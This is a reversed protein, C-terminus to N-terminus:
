FLWFDALWAAVQPLAPDNPNAKLDKYRKQMPLFLGPWSSPRQWRWTDFREQLKQGYREDILRLLDAYTVECDAPLAIPMAGILSASLTLRIDHADAPTLLIDYIGWSDTTKLKRRGKASIVTLEAGEDLAFSMTMHEAYPHRDLWGALAESKAAGRYASGWRESATLRALGLWEPGPICAKSMEFGYRPFQRDRALYPDIKKDFIEKRWQNSATEIAALTRRILERNEGSRSAPGKDALLRETMSRWLLAAYSLSRQKTKLGAQVAKAYSKLDAPLLGNRYAVFFKWAPDALLDANPM